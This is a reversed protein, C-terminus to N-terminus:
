PHRIKTEQPRDIDSVVLDKLFRWKKLAEEAGDKGLKKFDSREPEVGPDAVPQWHRLLEMDKPTKETVNQLIRARVQPAKALHNGWYGDTTGLPALLYIGRSVSRLVVFFAPGTETGDEFTGHGLVTAGAALPNAAKSGVLTFATSLEAVSLFAM